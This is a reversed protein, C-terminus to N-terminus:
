KNIPALRSPFSREAILALPIGPTNVPTAQFRPITHAVLSPTSKKTILIKVEARIVFGAAVPACAEVGSLTTIGAFTRFSEGTRFTLIQDVVTQFRRTRVAAGAHLVRIGGVMCANTRASKVAREAFIGSLGADILGAIVASLTRLGAASVFAGTRGTVTPNVALMLNVVAFRIGTFVLTTARVTDVAKLAYARLAEGSGLALRVDVIALPIGAM